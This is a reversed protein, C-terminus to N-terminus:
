RDLPILARDTLSSPGSRLRARAVLERVSNESCKFDGAAGAGAIASGAGKTGHFSQIAGDSPSGHRSRSVDARSAWDVRGQKQQRHKADQRHRNIITRPGRVRMRVGGQLENAVQRTARMVVVVLWYNVKTVRTVIREVPMKHWGRIDRRHWSGETRHAIRVPTRGVRGDKVGSRRSQNALHGFRHGRLIRRREARARSTAGVDGVVYEQRRCCYQKSQPQDVPQGPACRQRPVADGHPRLQRRGAADLM